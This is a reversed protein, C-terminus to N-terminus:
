SRLAKEFLCWSLTVLIINISLIAVLWFFDFSNSFAVNRSLEIGIIVIPIFLPFLIIPLSVENNQVKSSLMSFLVGISSMGLSTFFFVFLYSFFSAFYSFQFFLEFFASILIHLFTLILTISIVKSFFYISTSLNSLLITKIVDRESQISSSFVQIAVFVFCLWIASISLIQKNIDVLILQGFCFTALVVLTFTFGVLQALSNRYFLSFDKKILLSLKSM